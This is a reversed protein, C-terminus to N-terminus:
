AARRRPIKLAEVETKSVLKVRADLPDEWCTLLGDRIIKAMKVKSVDLLAQAQRVPILDKPNIREM